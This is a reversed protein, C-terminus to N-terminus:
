AANTEAADFKALCAKESTARGIIALVTEADPRNDADNAPVENTEVKSRGAYVRGAADPGALKRCKAESVGLANSISYWAMGRKRAGQISEATLEVPEVVAYPSDVRDGKQVPARELREKLIRAIYPRLTAGNFGTAEIVAAWSGGSERIKLAILADDLGVTKRDLSSM